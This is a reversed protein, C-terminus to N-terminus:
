ENEEAREFTAKFTTGEDASSTVELTGGHGRVIQEAIFLGLGLGGSSSTRDRRKYSAFLTPMVDPPIPKGFNHVLLEIVSGRGDLHADVPRAPDGHEVANGLLNSVVQSMRDPDWRGRGDGSWDWAIRRGPYRTRIEDVVNAVVDRLDCTTGAIPIGPGLRSRALDLLEDVMRAMRETSRLIRAVLMAEQSSAPRQELLRAAMLSAALPNRLDHGLVAVFEETVDVLAAREEARRRRAEDRRRQLTIRAAGLVFSLVVGSFAVVEWRSRSRASAVRRKALREATSQVDAAAGRIEDTMSRAARMDDAIVAPGAGADHAALTKKMADFQREALREIRDIEQHQSPETVKRISVLNDRWTTTARDYPRLFRSDNTALYGREANEADDVTLVLADLSRRMEDARALRALARSTRAISELGVALLVCLSLFPVSFWLWRRV